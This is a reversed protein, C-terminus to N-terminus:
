QVKTITQTTTDLVCTDGTKFASCAGEVAILCPIGYERAIVAGHSVTGGIETIIGSLLPFYPSWGIDTSYTILIDGSQINHAENIDESVCVRASVTGNSVPTGKMQVMGTSLIPPTIRKQFNRPRMQPGKIFEEFKYGGMQPYLRRRHRVRSLILSNRDGNCLAEVEPVTLYFFHDATPILGEAAMRQALLRFGQRWIDNMYVSFYKSLERYGIGRQAWPLVLKKLLLKKVSTLPTKLEDVVQDVSKVAKPQLQTENGSLLGKITQVCPIPNLKWTDYMPDLERYGSEDNGKVLVQLAEEDTLQRFSQKDKISKAIERLSNPVEASVVDSCSSILSNYDSELNPNNSLCSELFERLIMLKMSSGMSVPGHHKLSIDCIIHFSDLMGKWTDKVTSLQRLVAVLDYSKDDMLQKKAKM